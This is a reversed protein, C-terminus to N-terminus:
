YGRVPDVVSLLREGALFRRLIERFLLWRLERGEDSWAAFHPTIILNPARWLPHGEPLPEPDTVDLGAGALHGRDIADLLADTWALFAEGEPPEEADVVRSGGM